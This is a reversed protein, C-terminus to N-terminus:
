EFDDRLLSDAMRGKRITDILKENFARAPDFGHLKILYNLAIVEALVTINKGPFLPITVVPIEVGLISTKREELGSREYDQARDWEELNVELEIRKQLRIARIGFISGVDIIGIGRIEMHHMLVENGSGILISGHRKTVLVVDDAVLRHGREVLDLACESKGIASRGTFLLGVGYVDVLTGHVTTRPAFMFDLHATLRHIFPTTDMPTRLIPIKREEGKRLLYPPVELGKCVIICPLSFALVRDIAARKDKETLTALFSIETQGLIQVREQLFNDVFGALALGPRNVDSVTIPANSELTRTLAELQFEKAKDAFLKEVQIGRMANRERGAAPTL